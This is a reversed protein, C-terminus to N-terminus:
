LLNLLVCQTMLIQCHLGGASEEVSLIEKALQSKKTVSLLFSPFRVIRYIAILYVFHHMQSQQSIGVEQTREALHDLIVDYKEYEISLYIEIGKKSVFTKVKSKGKGSAFFNEAIADVDPTRPILEVWNKDRLQCEEITLPFGKSWKLYQHLLAHFLIFKLDGVGIHM